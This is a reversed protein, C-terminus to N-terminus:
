SRSNLFMLAVILALILRRGLVLPSSFAFAAELMSFSNDSASDSTCCISRSTREMAPARRESSCPRTRAYLVVNESMFFRKWSEREAKPDDTECRSSSSLPPLRETSSVASACPWRARRSAALSDNCVDVVRSSCVCRMTLSVSSIPTDMRPSRDCCRSVSWPVRSLNLPTSVSRARLRLIRVEMARRATAFLNMITPIMMARKRNMASM